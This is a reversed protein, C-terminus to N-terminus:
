CWAVHARVIFPSPRETLHQRAPSTRAVSLQAALAQPVDLARGFADLVALVLSFKYFALLFIM